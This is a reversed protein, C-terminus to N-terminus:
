SEKELVIWVSHNVLGYEKLISTLYLGLSSGSNEIKQSDHFISVSFDTDIMAHSYVKISQKKEKDKIEELLKKLYQVISERNNEGTRLEINELWKM